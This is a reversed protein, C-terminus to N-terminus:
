ATRPHTEVEYALRECATCIYQGEGAFAYRNYRLGYRRHLWPDCCVRYDSQRRMARVGRRCQRLGRRMERQQEQTVNSSFWIRREDVLISHTSHVSALLLDISMM